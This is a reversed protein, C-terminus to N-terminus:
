VSPLKKFDAQVMWSKPNNQISNSLLISIRLANEHFCSCNQRRPRNRLGRTLATSRKLCITQFWNQNILYYQGDEEHVELYHVYEHWTKRRWWWSVAFLEKCPWGSLRIWKFTWDLSFPQGYWARRMPKNCNDKKRRSWSRIPSSFSCEEYIDRVLSTIKVLGTHSCYLKCACGSACTCWECPRDLYDIKIRDPVPHFFPLLKGWDGM